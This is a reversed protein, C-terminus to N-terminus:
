PHSSSLTPDSAPITDRWTDDDPSALWTDRDFDGLRAEVELGDADYLLVREGIELRPLPSLAPQETFKV